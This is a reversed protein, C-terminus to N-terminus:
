VAGGSVEIHESHAPRALSFIEPFNSTRFGLTLKVVGNTGKASLHIIVIVNSVFFSCSIISNNHFTSLGNDLDSIILIDGEFDHFSLEMCIKNFLRRSFSNISTLPNQLVPFFKPLVYEGM